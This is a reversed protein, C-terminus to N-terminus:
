GSKAPPELRVSLRAAPDVAADFHAPTGAADARGVPRGDALLVLEAGDPFALPKGAADVITLEIAMVDEEIV